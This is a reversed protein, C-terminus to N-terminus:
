GAIEPTIWIILTGILFDHMLGIISQMLHEFLKLVKWGEFRRTAVLAIYLFIAAATSSM